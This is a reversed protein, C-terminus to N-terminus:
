APPGGTNPSDGGDVYEILTPRNPGSAWEQWTSELGANGQHMTILKHAIFAMFANPHHLPSLGATEAMATAGMNAEYDNVQGNRLHVRVLRTPPTENPEPEPEPTLM